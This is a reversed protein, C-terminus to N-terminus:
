DEVDSFEDPIIKWVVIGVVVSIALMILLWTLDSM